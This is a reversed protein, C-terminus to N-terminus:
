GGKKPTHPRTVSLEVSAPLPCLDRCLPGLLEGLRELRLERARTKNEQVRSVM